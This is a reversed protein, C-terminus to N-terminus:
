KFFEKVKKSFLLYSMIISNFILNIIGIIDQISIGKISILEGIIMIILIVISAIRAWNWKKILGIGLIAYLGAFILSAIGFGILVENTINSNFGPVGQFFDKSIFSLIGIGIFGASSIFFIISIIILGLPIKKEKKVM